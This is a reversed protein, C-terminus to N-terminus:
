AIRNGQLVAEIVDGDAGAATIAVGIQDGTTRTAVKGAAAPELEDGVSIAASAIFNFTGGDNVLKVAVVGDNTRNGSATTPVDDLAIGIWPNGTTAAHSVEGNSDLTLRANKTIAATTAPFTRTTATAATSAM